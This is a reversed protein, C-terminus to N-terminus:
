IPGKVCRFKWKRKKKVLPNGDYAMYSKTKSFEYRVTRYLGTEDKPNQLFKECSSKDLFKKSDEIAGTEADLVVFFFISFLGILTPKM